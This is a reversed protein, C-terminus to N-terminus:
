KRRVLSFDEKSVITDDSINSNDKSRIGTDEGIQEAFSILNELSYTSSDIVKVYYLFALVIIILIIFVIVANSHKDKVNSHKDKM